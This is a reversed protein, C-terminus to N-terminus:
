KLLEALIKKYLNAPLSVLLASLTIVDNWLDSISLIKIIILVELVMFIALVSVSIGTFMNVKRYDKCIEYTDFYLSICATILGAFNVADVWNTNTCFFRAFILTFLTAFTFLGYINSKQKM